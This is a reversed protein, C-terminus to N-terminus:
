RSAPPEADDSAMPSPSTCFRTCGRSRTDYDPHPM